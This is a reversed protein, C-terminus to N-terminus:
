KTKLHPPPPPTPPPTLPITTITTMPSGAVHVLQFGAGWPVNGNNEVLWTKTFSTGGLIPTDDPITVDDVFRGNAPM